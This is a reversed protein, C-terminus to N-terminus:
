NKIAPEVNAFFTIWRMVLITCCLTKRALVVINTNDEDYGGKGFNALTLWVNKANQLRSTTKCHAIFVVTGIALDHQGLVRFPEGVCHADLQELRGGLVVDVHLLHEDADGPQHELVLQLHLLSLVDRLVVDDIEALAVLLALSLATLLDSGCM